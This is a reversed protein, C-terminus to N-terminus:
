PGWYHHQVWLAWHGQIIITFWVSYSSHRQRLRGRNIQGQTHERGHVGTTWGRTLGKSMSGTEGAAAKLRMLAPPWISFTKKTMQEEAIANPSGARIHKEADHGPLRSLLFWMFQTKQLCKSTIQFTIWFANWLTKQTMGSAVCLTLYLIAVCRSHLIWEAARLTTSSVSFSLGYTSLWASVFQRSCPKAAKNNQPHSSLNRMSRHQCGEGVYSNSVCINNSCFGISIPWHHRSVFILDSWKCITASVTQRLPKCRPRGSSCDWSKPSLPSLQNKKLRM